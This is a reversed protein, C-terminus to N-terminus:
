NFIMFMDDSEGLEITRLIHGIFPLDREMDHLYRNEGKYKGSEITVFADTIDVINSIKEVTNVASVPSNLITCINKIFGYLAIPDSAKTEMQMRKLQYILHRRAWNGKHDKADGLLALSATIMTLIATEAIARKLNYKEMDSLERWRTAMQLKGDKLDKVCGVLFRFTSIYYGERYDGLDTDYYLGRFRRSYHAPMWQRFNMILRGVAYKHIMGKDFQNFAGHMSNNTYKIRGKLTYLDEKTIPEGNKKKYGEKIKLEGNGTEDREVYFAEMISVENGNNDLINNKKNHLVALMGQARLLHEGIGYLFFLNSNGIIKSIPNKYFGTEKIKEYFDGSVDFEEMMLGLLSSKNNSNVEVLLEPLMQFYKADAYVMDKMNFFEGGMGLGSDILMQLKGVLVNAGAGLINTALGTVSTYGKLYDLTKDIRIKTGWIYGENKKSKSYVCREFFDTALGGLGTEVGMKTAVNAYIKKGVKTTNALVNGGSTQQVPRQTLMYDKALMLADLIKDMEVYQQSFALYALMSRSFDTSVRSRDKIKHSYFLPLNEVVEGRSNIKTIRINNADLISGYDADDERDKFNDVIKNKILSYLKTPDGGAEAMATTVDNALEIVDFLTNNNIAQIRSIMAAKMDVMTKWYDYEEKTLRDKVSVSAKYIPARFVLTKTDGNFDIYKYKVSETHDNEWKKILDDYDKKNISSDNKIQEKYEALEKDYRAYDYDSIIKSPYGNEDKEYMFSTKSGSDHLKQTIVRITKLQKKLKEDRKEQARKVAEAILNMMEDSSNSVAYIFRDFFNIDKMAMNMIGNEGGLDITTGDPLEKHEGWYIKLFAYVVDYQKIRANTKIRTLKNLIDNVIDKIDEVLENNETFDDNELLDANALQEMIPIFSETLDLQNLIINSYRRIVELSDPNKELKTKLKKIKNEQSDISNKVSELMSIISDLYREQEINKQIKILRKEGRSNGYKSKAEQFRIIQIQHLKNAADSITKIKKNLSDLSDKDLNYTTYLEKLTDQVSIGDSNMYTTSNNMDAKTQEIINDIVNNKLVRKMAIRINDLMNVIQNDQLSSIEVPDNYKYGSVQSIAQPLDDGFQNVLRIMLPNNSFLDILLSAVNININETSTKLEKLKNINYYINIPNFITETFISFDTNLGEDEFRKIIADYLSMKYRISNNFNFNDTNLSDVQIYYGKDSYKIVAKLEEHSDNFDLVNQIIDFFSDYYITDGNNDIAQISKAENAINDKENLIKKVGFKEIFAKTDPEGQSNLESHSFLSKSEEQLSIAYLLNTLKRDKKTLNYLEIYLKSQENNVIPYLLCPGNM